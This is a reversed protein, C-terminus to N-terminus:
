TLLASESKHQILLYCPFSSLSAFFFSTLQLHYSQTFVCKGRPPLGVRRESSASAIGHNWQAAPSLGRGKQIPATLVAGQLREGHPRCASQAEPKM